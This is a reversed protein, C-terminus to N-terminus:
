RPRELVPGQLLGVLAAVPLRGRLRVRTGDPRDVVLEDLEVVDVRADVHDSPVRATNMTPLAVFAAANVPMAAAGLSALPLGLADSIDSAECCELLTHAIEVLPAPVPEDPDHRLARWRAFVRRALELPCADHPLVTPTM